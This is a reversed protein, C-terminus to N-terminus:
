PDGSRNTKGLNRVLEGRWRAYQRMVFAAERVALMMPLVVLLCAFLLYLLRHSAPRGTMLPDALFWLLLDAELLIGAVMRRRFQGPTLQAQNGGRWRWVEYALYLGFAIMAAFVAPQTYPPLGM